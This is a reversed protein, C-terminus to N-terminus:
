DFNLQMNSYVLQNRNWRLVNVSGNSEAAIAVCIACLTPDGAMVLYDDATMKALVMRAHDIAASAIFNPGISSFIIKLNGFKEAASYDRRTDEHVLYATRKNENIENM